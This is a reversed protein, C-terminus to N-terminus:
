LIRPIEQNAAFGTLKELLVRSWPTLLYTLTHVSVAFSSSLIHLSFHTVSYRLKLPIRRRGKRRIIKHQTSARLLEIIGIIENYWSRYYFILRIKLKCYPTNIKHEVKGEGWAMYIINFTEHIKLTPNRSM